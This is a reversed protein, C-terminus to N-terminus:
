HNLVLDELEDPLILALDIQLTPVDKLLDALM